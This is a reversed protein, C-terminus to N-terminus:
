VVFALAFATHVNHGASVNEIADPAVVIDVHESHDLVCTEISPEVVHVVHPLPCYLGLVDIKHAGQRSACKQVPPAALM